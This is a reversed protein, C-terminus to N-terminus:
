FIDHVASSSVTSQGKGRKKKKDMHKGTPATFFYFFLFSVTQVQVHHAVANHLTGPKDAHTYTCTYTYIDVRCVKHQDPAVIELVCYNIDYDIISDICPYTLRYNFLTITEGRISVM